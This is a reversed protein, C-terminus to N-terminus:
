KRPHPNSFKQEATELCTITTTSTPLVVTKCSNYINFVVKGLCWFWHEPFITNVSM